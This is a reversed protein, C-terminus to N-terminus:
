RHAGTLSGPRIGDPVEGVLREYIAIIREIFVAESFHALARERGAAGMREARGRDTLLDVLAVELASEDGPPVLLGTVGDRVSEALGGSGSAVVATGRMMAETAVIGFPEEWLSPVVQVWAGDFRGEVEARALHGAFTVAHAIGLEAVLRELRGRDPGDGALLLRAGPVVDAAGAFARVLGHVGKERTLRGAYAVLRPEGLPPRPARTPVGNWVVEVPGIGEALLRRRTAESNAVILRFAGRWRRWLRLKIMLPLWAKPGVCGHDLCTRGAEERCASGDPLMKLGTPCISEYMVAHYLSPVGRLLPLILPSLQTLFMRVHVVDPQFERLARRLRVVAWPNAAQLPVQLRSTTGFCTYDAACPGAQAGAISALLRVDHGRAELGNRLTQTM